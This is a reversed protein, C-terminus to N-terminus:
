KTEQTKYFKVVSCQQDIYHTNNDPCGCHWMPGLIGDSWFPKCGEAIALQHAREHNNM